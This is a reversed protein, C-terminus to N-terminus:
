CSSVVLPKGERRPFYLSRLPTPNVEGGWFFSLFHVSMYVSPPYVCCSKHMHPNREMIESHGSSLHEKEKEEEEEEEEEEEQM